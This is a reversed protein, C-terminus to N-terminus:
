PEPEEPFAGRSVGARSGAIIPWAMWAQIAALVETPREMMSMHGCADILRLQAGPIMAAMREHRDPPSWTDERGCLVLTPCAIEALLATADPRGLLARTQRAYIDGSMRGVMRLVRELLDVDGQQSAGLMPRAWTEAIADIGQALAREVLVARRQAEGEGVGEHGTDLLALRAVRDPRQRLVELAVRGGMSHGALSFRGPTTQLVHGAMSAISDFDQFSVLRVDCTKELESVQASWVERDCLLGCLLVLTEMSTGMLLERM